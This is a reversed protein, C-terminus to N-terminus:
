SSTMFAFVIRSVFKVQLLFEQVVPPEVYDAELQTLFDKLNPIDFEAIIKYTLGKADRITVVPKDAATHDFGFENLGSMFAYKNSVAFNFSLFGPM